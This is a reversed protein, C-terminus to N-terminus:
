HRKRGSILVLISAGMVISQEQHEFRGMGDMSSLTFIEITALNSGSSDFM